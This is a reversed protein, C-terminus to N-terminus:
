LDFVVGATLVTTSISDGDEYMIGTDFCVNEFPSYVIGFSGLKDKDENIRLDLGVLIKDSIELLPSVGIEGKGFSELATINFNLAWLGSEFTFIGNLDYDLSGIESTFSISFAMNDFSIMQLKYNIELPKIQPYGYGVALDLESKETFGHKIAIYSSLSNQMDWDSGIEVEVTGEGVVGADDTVFPRAEFLFGRLILFAFVWSM